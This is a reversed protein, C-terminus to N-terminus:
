LISEAMDEESSPDSLSLSTLSSCSATDLSAAGAATYDAAAAALDAIPDPLTWLLPDAHDPPLCTQYWPHPPPPAPLHGLM